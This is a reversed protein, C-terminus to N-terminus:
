RSSRSRGPSRSKQGRTCHRMVAGGCQALVAAGSGCSKATRAAVSTECPLWTWRMEGCRRSSRSGGRMRTLRTANDRHNARRSLRRSTRCTPVVPLKRLASIRSPIAPPLAPTDEVNGESPDRVKLVTLRVDASVFPARRITLNSDGHNRSITLHVGASDSYDKRSLAIAARM